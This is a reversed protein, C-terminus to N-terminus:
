GGCEWLPPENAVASWLKAFHAALRALLLRRSSTRIRHDWRRNEHSASQLATAVSGGSQSPPPLAADRLRRHKCRGRLRWRGGCSRFLTAYPVASWLKAFYVAPRALM